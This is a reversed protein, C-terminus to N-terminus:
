FQKGIFVLFSQVVDGEWNSGKGDSILFEM